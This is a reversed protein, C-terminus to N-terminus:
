ADAPDIAGVEAGMPIVWTGEPYPAGKVILNKKLQSIQIDNFNPTDMM